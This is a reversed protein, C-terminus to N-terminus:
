PFKLKLGKQLHYLSSARDSIELVYKSPASPGYIPCPDKRCPPISPIIDVIVKDENLWIIDISILMNKMWMMHSEYNEFIFVMGEDPKLHSYGMLGLARSKSNNAVYTEITKGGPLAVAMKDLTQAFFPDCRFIFLTCYILFTMLSLSNLERM